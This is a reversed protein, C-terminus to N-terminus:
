RDLKGAFLWERGGFEESAVSGLGAIAHTGSARAAAGGLRLRRVVRLEM